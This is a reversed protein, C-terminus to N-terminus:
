LNAIIVAITSLLGVLVTGTTGVIVKILAGQGSKMEDRINDLKLEVKELRRELQQYNQEVLSIRVEIESMM